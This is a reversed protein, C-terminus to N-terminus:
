QPPNDGADRLKGHQEIDRHVKEVERQYEEKTIIGKRILILLLAEVHLMNTYSVDEFSFKKNNKM